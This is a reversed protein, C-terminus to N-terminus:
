DLEKGLYARVLQQFINMENKEEIFGIQQLPFQSLPYSNRFVDRRVALSRVFIVGNRVVELGVEYFDVPRIIGSLPDQVNMHRANDVSFRGLGNDDVNTVGDEAPIQFVRSKHLGVAQLCDLTWSPPEWVSSTGKERKDRRRQMRAMNRGGIAMEGPEMRGSHRRRGM